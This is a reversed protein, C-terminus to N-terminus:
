LAIEKEECGIQIMCQKLLFVFVYITTPFITEFSNLIPDVIKDITCVQRLKENWDIYIIIM